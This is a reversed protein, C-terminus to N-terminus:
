NLDTLLVLGIKGDLLLACTGEMRIARHVMRSVAEETKIRGAEDEFLILAHFNGDGVHGLITNVLGHEELDRKTELVLEPLRSVPVTMIRENMLSRKVGHAFSVSAVFM